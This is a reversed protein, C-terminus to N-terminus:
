ELPDKKIYEEFQALVQRELPSQLFCSHGRTAMWEAERQYLLEMREARFQAAAMSINCLSSIDSADHIGLRWLVCAPALLRSAFVNAEMELPDDTDFPERNRASYEVNHGDALLHGLYIHGLEHALTFRTRRPHMTEDYYVFLRGGDDRITFGDNNLLYGLGHRSFHEANDCYRGLPIGDARLIKSVSVPLSGVGHDILCRWSANRADNYCGYPNKM